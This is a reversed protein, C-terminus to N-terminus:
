DGKSDGEAEGKIANAIMQAAVDDRDTEAPEVPEAAKTVKAPERVKRRSPQAAPKETVDKAFGDAVLRKAIGESVEVTAGRPFRKWGKLLKVKRM